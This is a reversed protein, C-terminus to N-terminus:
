YPSHFVHFSADFFSILVSFTRKHGMCFMGQTAGTAAPPAGTAGALVVCRTLKVVLYWMVSKEYCNYLDLLFLIHLEDVSSHYCEM